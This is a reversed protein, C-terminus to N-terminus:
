VRRVQQHFDLVEAAVAGLCDSDEASIDKTGFLSNFGGNEFLEESHTLTMGFLEDYNELNIDAEDMEFDPYMNDECISPCKTGLCYFQM